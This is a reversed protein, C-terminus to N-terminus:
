NFEEVPTAPPLTLLITHDDIKEDIIDFSARLSALFGEVDGAKFLGAVRLQKLEDSQIVFELNTYRGVEHVANSLSEGRFVINGERWSLRVEVEDPELLEVEKSRQHDTMVRENASVIPLVLQEQSDVPRVAVRVRGETVILEIEQSEDIRVNFSTGVAEFVRDGVLVRLPRATDHAVDIHIEGRELILRRENPLMLVELRTDTNLQVISGDNLYITSRDGVPTEYRAENDRIERVERAIEPEPMSPQGALLYLGGAVLLAAVSAAVALNMGFSRQRTHPVLESLKSLSDMQDWLAALTMLETRNRQDLAMWAQIDQEEKQTLGRELRAVWISAEEARLENGRLPRVNSM